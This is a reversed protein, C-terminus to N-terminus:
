HSSNLCTSKRDREYIASWGSLQFRITCDVTPREDALAASTGILAIAVTAAVLIASRWRTISM